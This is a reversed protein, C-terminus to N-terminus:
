WAYVKEIFKGKILSTRKGHEDLSYVEKGNSCVIAGDPAIDFSIIGEALVEVKGGEPLKILEWSRPVLGLRRDKRLQDGLIKSADVLNGHIFYKEPDGDNRAPNSGSTLPKGTYRMSFFNLWNFIANVIRFPMLLIDMLLSGQRTHSKYPRKIYYLNGDADMMPALCDYHDYKVLEEIEGTKINLQNIGSPATGVYVGNAGRGIGASQYVLADQSDQTWRPFTDVTDGETLTTTSGDKLNMAYLHEQQGMEQQSYILTNNKSNYCPNQITVDKDHFIHGESDGKGFPNVKFLGGMQEIRISYILSRTRGYRTLGTIKYNEMEMQPDMEPFMGDYGMAATMSKQKWEKRRQIVKLNEMYNELYQSPIPTTKGNDWIFMEKDTIYAIKLPM